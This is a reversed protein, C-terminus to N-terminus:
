QADNLLRENHARLEAIAMDEGAYSDIFDQIAKRIIASRSVGWRTAIEELRERTATDVRLPVFETLNEPM